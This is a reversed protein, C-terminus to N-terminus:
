AATGELTPPILNVNVIFDFVLKVKSAEEEDGLEKACNEMLLARKVSQSKVREMQIARKIKCYASPMIESGVVFTREKNSLSTWKPDNMFPTERSNVMPKAVYGKELKAAPDRILQQLNDLNEM